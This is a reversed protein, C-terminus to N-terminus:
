LECHHNIIRTAGNYKEMIQSASAIGNEEFFLKKNICATKNVYNSVFGIDHSVMIITIQKNLEKFLSYIDQEVHSDVSAVPEDLLLLEPNSVLARAILARQKQGGSLSGFKENRLNFIDVQRMAKEASLEEKKSFFPFFSAKKILGHLVVEKVSIPFDKDFNSFQPVYGIIASTKHPTSDFIKITGKQPKILGLMLKLITTKGGGNPGILAFFDRKEVRFNIEEVVPHAEYAFTVNEFLVASM